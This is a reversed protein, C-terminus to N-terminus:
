DFTGDLDRNIRRIQTRARHLRTHRGVLVKALDVKDEPVYDYRIKGDVRRSIYLPDALNERLVNAGPSAANGTSRWSAVTLTLPPM